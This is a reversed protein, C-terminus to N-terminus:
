PLGGLEGLVREAEGGLADVLGALSAGTMGEIPVRGWLVLTGGEDAALRFPGLESDFFNRRFLWLVVGYDLQTPLAAIPVVVMLERDDQAFLAVTTTKGVKLQIGGNDDPQLASIGLSRAFEQYLAATKPYPSQAIM